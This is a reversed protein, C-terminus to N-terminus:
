NGKAALEIGRKTVLCLIDGRVVLKVDDKSLGFDKVYQRAAEQMETDDPAAFLVTNPKVHM